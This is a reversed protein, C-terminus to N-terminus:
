TWHSHKSSKAFYRRYWDITELLGDELHVKASWTLMKEAKKSSLYQEDLEGKLKGRGKILPKLPNKGSIGIIKKVLDLVSIPRGTGFNFAQGRNKKNDLKEALVLYANVIDEIYIYDRLPAGDSRIIPSKNQLVSRITDPIIRSFNLDGGGYTNACRSVAVPLDYTQAYSRVLIDCCAKSAEYPHIPLLPFEETYPLKDHKGYAKDSSAVIIRSINKYNRCAELLVWAGKINSEFTSLPSNNAIQVIAQAALHFCTDIKKENLIRELLAYDTVSGFVMTVKDTLKHLTLGGQPTIDRVLCTTNARKEVLAKTLWSGVFGDAGTIFVNRGNWFDGM